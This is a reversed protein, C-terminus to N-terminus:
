PDVRESLTRGGVRITFPSGPSSGGILKGFLFPQEPPIVELALWVESAAADETNKLIREAGLSERPAQISTITFGAANLRNRLELEDATSLRGELKIRDLYFQMLHESMQHRTQAVYYDVGAFIVFVLFTFFILFEVAGYGGQDLLRIRHHKYDERNGRQATCSGSAEPDAASVRCNGRGGHGTGANRLGRLWAPGEALTKFM